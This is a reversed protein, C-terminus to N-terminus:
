KKIGSKDWNEGYCIMDRRSVNFIRVLKPNGECFIYGSDETFCDQAKNGYFHYTNCHKCGYKLLWYHVEDPREMANRSQEFVEIAERTKESIM